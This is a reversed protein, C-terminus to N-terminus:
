VHPSFKASTRSTDRSERIPDLNKTGHKKVDNVSVSITNQVIIFDFSEVAFQNSNCVFIKFLKSSFSVTGHSSITRVCQITFLVHETKSIEQQSFSDVSKSFPNKSHKVVTVHVCSVFNHVIVLISFHISIKTFKRAFYEMM